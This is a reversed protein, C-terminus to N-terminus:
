TICWYLYAVDFTKLTSALNTPRFNGYFTVELTEVLERSNLLVFDLKQVESTSTMMLLV